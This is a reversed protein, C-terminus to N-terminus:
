QRCWRGLRLILTYGSWLQLMLRHLYWLLNVVASCHTVSVQILNIFANGKRLYQCDKFLLLSCNTICNHMITVPLLFLRAEYVPLLMIICNWKNESVVIPMHHPRDSQKEKFETQAAPESLWYVAYMFSGRSLQTTQRKMVLRSTNLIKKGWFM